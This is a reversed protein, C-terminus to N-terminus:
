GIAFSTRQDVFSFIPPLLPLDKIKPDKIKPDKMKQDKIKQDKIRSQQDKIMSRKKRELLVIVHDFRVKLIDIGSLLLSTVTIVKLVKAETVYCM